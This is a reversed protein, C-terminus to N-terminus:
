CNPCWSLHAYKEPLGDSHKIVTIINNKNNKKL